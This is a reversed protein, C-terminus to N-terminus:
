ECCPLLVAAPVKRVLGLPNVYEGHHRVGVHLTGMVAHGGSGLSGIMEGAEVADGVEVTPDIPEVSTVWGDGHDITVTGREAVPGAFAVTGAAAAFVEASGTGSAVDVGRHGPGYAHAPAVFPALVVAAPVPLRWDEPSMDVLATETPTPADTAGAATLPLLLIAAIATCVVAIRFRPM